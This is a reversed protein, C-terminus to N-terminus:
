KRLGSVANALRELLRFHILDKVQLNVIIENGNDDKFKSDIYADASVMM